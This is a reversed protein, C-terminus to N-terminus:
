PITQPKEEDKKKRGRQRERRRDKLERSQVAEYQTSFGVSYMVVYAYRTYKEKYGYFINVAIRKM